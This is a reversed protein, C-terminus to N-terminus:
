KKVGMLFLECYGFIVDQNEAAWLVEVHNVGANAPKSVSVVPCDNALGGQVHQADVGNLRIKFRWQRNNNYFGQAGTALMYLMGAEPLNVWAENVVVFNGVGNGWRQQGPAYSAIPVMLAEGALKLTNIQADGIAASGITADGILASSLVVRPIGGVTGVTFPMIGPHNPLAVGFRDANVIFESTTEGAVNTTSALGFGSVRGNSDIKITYQSYLGENVNAQVTFREELTAGGINDLRATVQQVSQAIASNAEAKSYSYTEIYARTENNATQYESTIINYQSAMAANVDSKSYTYERVDASATSIAQQKAEDAYAKYETEIASKAVAIAQNTEAKEYAFDQVYTKASSLTQVDAQTRADIEGALKDILGVEPADIKDIRDRLDKYLQTATLQDQLIDLLKKPDSETTARRAPSTFDSYNGSIDQVRAWYFFTQGIQLGLHSFHTTPYALDTLRQASELNEVTNYWLEIKRIGSTQNYTWDLLNQFLDGKATFTSLGVPKSTKGQAIFGAVQTYPSVRGAPNISAVRVDYAQGPNVPSIYASEDRTILTEWNTGGGTERWELTYEKVLVNLPRRWRAFIRATVVGTEGDVFVHDQGTALTLNSPAGPLSPNKYSYQIEDLNTETESQVYKNRNVEVASIRFQYPSGDVEEISLVRFPKAFGFGSTDELAFVTYRPINPPLSSLLRFRTVHGIEEPMVDVEVIGDVTQLKVKYEKMEEIYIPDRFNLYDEDYTTLRGSQSWGMLPDAVLIIDLMTLLAGQRTTTFSVMATETLSSILRVQAKAVAEHANTCGVAIFDLPVRGFKDIAAESTTVNPIRRRDENWDLEPNIFAVSIDNARTSLDTFTYEFGEDTVNEPSFVAVAPDDKDVKLHIQGQLDDWVVANFSGAVYNLMEMAPRPEVIIDNFTYRARTQPGGNVPIQEDCWRAALYFDFRNADVHVRHAALGYRPNVIMDYLIWAPNDTWAFKFSGNWPVSDDYTKTDPNYNTPVRVLLGDYVGMFEPLSSFQGTSVGLLHVVATDPYTRPEKTVCQFSDWVMDVFTTENSDPSVKVVRIQYDESIREVSTVLEKTVGTTTKGYLFIIEDNYFNKWVTASEAKYQVKFQATHGFSGGETTKMLRSINLRVELTDIKNRLTADTQRVVPVNSFLVVGVASNSAEGGLVLSLPKAIGEPYGPHVGLAFKQFNLNGDQSMLPTDGIYFSKAGESLGRIPGESIALAVELVDESFLNDPTNTPSSQGGGAGQFLETNESM